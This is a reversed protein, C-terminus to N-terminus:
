SNMAAYAKNAVTAFVAYALGGGVVIGVGIAANKAVKVVTENTAASKIAELKSPKAEAQPAAAGNSKSESQSNSQTQSM